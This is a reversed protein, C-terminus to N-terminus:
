LVSNVVFFCNDRRHVWNRFWQGTSFLCRQDTNIIEPTGCHHAARKLYNIYFATDLINSLVLDIIKRSYWDIIASLYLYGRQLPIYTIDAGFVHNSRNIALDKLLRPFIGSPGGPISTQQRSYIAEGGMMRMLRATRKRKIGRAILRELYDSLRLSGATSDELYLRDLQKMLARNEESGGALEYSIISRPIHLFLLKRRISPQSDREVLQLLQRNNGVAQM